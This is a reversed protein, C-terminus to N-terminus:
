WNDDRELDEESEPDSGESSEPGRVPEFQYPRVGPRDSRPSFDGEQQDTNSEDSTEDFSSSSCALDDESFDSEIRDAM